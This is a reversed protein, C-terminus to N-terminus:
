IIEYQPRHNKCKLHLVNGIKSCPKIKWTSRCKCNQGLAITELSRTSTNNKIERIKVEDKTMRINGM